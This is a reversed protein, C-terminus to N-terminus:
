HEISQRILGCDTDRANVARAAVSIFVASRELRPHGGPHEQCGMWHMQVRSLGYPLASWFHFSLFRMM